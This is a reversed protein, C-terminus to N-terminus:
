KQNKKEFFRRYQEQYASLQPIMSRVGDQPSTHVAVEDVDPHLRVSGKLKQCFQNAVEDFDPQLLKKLPVLLHFYYSNIAVVRLLIRDGGPGLYKGLCSRYMNPMVKCISGDSQPAMTPSVLEVFIALQTPRPDSGTIFGRLAM